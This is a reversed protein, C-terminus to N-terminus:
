FFFFNFDRSIEKYNENKRKTYQFFFHNLDCSLKFFLFLNINSCILCKSNPVKYPTTIFHGDPSSITISRESCFAVKESSVFLLGAIPGATTSLYCQSAKLMQEGQSMGFVQRFINERGGERVVRAGLSLKGKVTESLKQGLKVVILGFWVM